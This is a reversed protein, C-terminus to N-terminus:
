TTFQDIMRSYNSTQKFGACFSQKYGMIACDFGFYGSSIILIGYNLAFIIPILIFAFAFATLGVVWVLFFKDLTLGFKNEILRSKAEMLLRYYAGLIIFVGKITLMIVAIVMLWVCCIIAQIIGKTLPLIAIDFPNESRATRIELLYDFMANYNFEWYDQTVNVSNRVMPFVGNSGLLCGGFFINQDSDFTADFADWIPWIIAVFTSALVVICPWLILAIPLVLMTLVKLNPGILGTNAVCKYTLFVDHPLLLIAGLTCGGIIILLSFPIAIAAKVLALIPLGGCCCCFCLTAYERRGM